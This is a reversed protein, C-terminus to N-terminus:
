LALRFFLQRLLLIILTFIAFTGYMGSNSPLYDNINITLKHCARVVINHTRILLGGADFLYLM